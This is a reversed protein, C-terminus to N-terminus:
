TDSMTFAFLKQAEAGKANGVEQECYPWGERRGTATPLSLPITSAIKKQRHLHAVVWNNRRDKMNGMVLWHSYDPDGIRANEFVRMPTSCYHRMGEYIEQGVLQSRHEKGQVSQWVIYPKFPYESQSMAFGDEDTGPPVKSVNERPVLACGVPGNPKIIAISKRRENQYDIPDITGSRLVCDEILQRKDEPRRIEGVVRVSEIRWSEDRNDKPSKCCDFDATAWLKISGHNAVSLPYFRVLGHTESAGICCMTTRGDSCRNPAGKAIVTARITQM